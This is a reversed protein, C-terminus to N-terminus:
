AAETTGRADRVVRPTCKPCIRHGSGVSEFEDGCTVCKRYAFTNVEAFIREADGIAELIYKVQENCKSWMVVAGIHTSRWELLTSVAQETALEPANVTIDEEFEDIQNSVGILAQEFKDWMEVYPEYKRKWSKLDDVASGLLKAAFLTDGHLTKFSHYQRAKDEYPTVQMAQIVRGSYSEEEGKINTETYTIRISRMMRRAQELRYEDAAKDNNWEFYKHIPSQESRGVDLVDRATVGSKESLEVLIPGIIQADRKTFHSGDAAFFEKISLSPKIKTAMLSKGDGYKARAADVKMVQHPQDAEDDLIKKLQKGDISM